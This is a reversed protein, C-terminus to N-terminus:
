HRAARVTLDLLVLLGLGAATFVLVEQQSNRASRTELDDLRKTLDQIRKLLAERTTDTTTATTPAGTTGSRRVDEAPSVVMTPLEPEV